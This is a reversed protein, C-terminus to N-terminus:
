IIVKQILINQHGERKAELIGLILSSASFSFSWDWPWSQIPGHLFSSLGLPYHQSHKFCDAQEEM